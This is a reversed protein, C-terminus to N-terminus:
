PAGMRWRLEVVDDRRTLEDLYRGPAPMVRRRPWRLEYQYRRRHAEADGSGAREIIRYGHEALGATLSKRIDAAEDITVELAARREMPLGDEFRNLVTLVIYGLVTAAIGIGIQGGGICLGVMTVFWLTAATTVGEIINNRRLITGAGIFGMGSLVGLPFRALDLVTFSDSPKGRTDLLLNTEIMSLAAALCVLLTTRLGAPHGTEGRNWGILAGAVLTFFLRAAIDPWGITLPM